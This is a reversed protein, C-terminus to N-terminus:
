PRHFRTLHKSGEHVPMEQAKYENLEKRIAAKDKPTLRTWPKDAKRDYENCETFEIYDSFKIIKREKLEEITPRFSLKRTLVKKTENREKAIEDQTHRHLINRSELEEASPRLSLRRTLKQGVVERERLKEQDSKSPLINRCELESKPPRNSLFKALSDRRAVKSAWGPFLTWKIVNKITQMQEEDDDDRWKIEGDDSDDNEPINEKDSEIERPKEVDDPRAMKVIRPKMKPKPAVKPGSSNKLASKKPQMQLNPERAPIEEVRSTDIVPYPLHSVGYPSTPSGSRIPLTNSTYSFRQMSSVPTTSKSYDNQQQVRPSSPPLTMSQGHNMVNVGGKIGVHNHHPMNDYQENQKVKSDYSPNYPHSAEEKRQVVEEYNHFKHMPPLPPLVKFAMVSPNQHQPTDVPPERPLERSAPLGSTPRITGLSDSHAVQSDPSLSKSAMPINNGDHDHSYHSDNHGATTSALPTSGNATPAEYKEEKVSDIEQVPSLGDVTKSQDADTLGNNTEDPKLIGRRILEERNSRFSLNRELDGAVKEIKESKKKRKWKWPRFFKGIASLRSSKREAPPSGTGPISGSRMNDSGGNQKREPIDTGNLTEKFDPVSCTHSTSSTDLKDKDKDKSRRRLRLM